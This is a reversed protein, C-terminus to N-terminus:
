VWVMDSVVSAEIVVFEQPSEEVSTAVMCTSQHVVPVTVAPAIASITITVSETHFCILVEQFIMAQKLVLIINQLTDSDFTM